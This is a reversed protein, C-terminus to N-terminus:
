DDDIETRGDKHHLSRPHTLKSLSTKAPGASLLMLVTMLIASTLCWACTAGIVFPELFTLYASFLTGFVIVAFLSISAMDAHWGRTYRALIWSISIAVYGLLGLVGIPLIGFLRAYESQQVTNCDGVPGCVATVQSTEVYALYGAVGFGIVCLGPIVWAWNSKLSLNHTKRFIFITSVISALMLVLVIVAITNGIPDRSFNEQWNSTQVDHATLGPTAIPATVTSSAPAPEPTTQLTETQTSAAATAADAQTTQAIAESLGPIDPWDVGGQTLYSEVLGPFKEPIDLSGILYTDDIVLFPVGGQQLNFKQLASLFLTQGNQQTVDLGIIQLQQGYQEMMPLLTENIVQQCHPCTPSYFLIARVVPLNQQAQAHTIPAIFLSILFFISTIIHYRKM